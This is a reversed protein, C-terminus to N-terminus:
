PRLTLVFSTHLLYLYLYLEGQFLGRLGLPPISTYSYEKRLRPALHPHTTLAVEAAKGEPFYGTSMTYSALHAGPDTQVLASFRAWV